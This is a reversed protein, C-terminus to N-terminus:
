PVTSALIQVTCYLVSRCRRYSHSNVKQGMGWRRSPHVFPHSIALQSATPCAYRALMTRYPMILTNWVLGQFTSWYDCTVTFTLRPLLFSLKSTPLPLFFLVGPILIHGPTKKIHQSFSAPFFPSSAGLFVCTFLFVAPLCASCFLISPTPPHLPTVTGTPSYM